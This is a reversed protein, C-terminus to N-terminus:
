MALEPLMDVAVIVIMRSFLCNCCVLLFSMLKCGRGKIAGCREEWIWLEESVDRDSVFSIVM